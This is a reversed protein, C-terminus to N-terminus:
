CASKGYASGNDRKLLEAVDKNEPKLGLGDMSTRLQNTNSPGIIPITVFDSNAGLAAIILAAKSCNYKKTMENLMKLKKRSVKTQM